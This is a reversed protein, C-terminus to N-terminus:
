TWRFETTDGTNDTFKDNRKFVFLDAWPKNHSSPQGFFNLGYRIQRGQRWCNKTSVIKFKDGVQPKLSVDVNDITVFGNLDNYIEITFPAQSSLSGSTFKIKEGKYYDKAPIKINTKFKNHTNIIHPDVRYEPKKSPFKIYDKYANYQLGAFVRLFEYYAFNKSGLQFMTTSDYTPAPPPFDLMKNNICSVQGPPPPGVNGERDFTRTWHAQYCENLGAYYTYFRKTSPPPTPTLTNEKPWLWIYNRLLMWCGQTNHLGHITNGKAIFKPIGTRNSRTKVVLWPNQTGDYIRGAYNHPSIFLYYRKQRNYPTNVPLINNGRIMNLKLMQKMIEKKCAKRTASVHEDHLKKIEQRVKSAINGPTVPGYSIALFRTYFVLEVKNGPPYKYFLALSATPYAIALEPIWFLGGMPHDIEGDGFTIFATLKRPESLEELIKLQQSNLRQLYNKPESDDFEFPPSSKHFEMSMLWRLEPHETLTPRM